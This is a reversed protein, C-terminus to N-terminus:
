GPRVPRRRVPFRVTILTAPGTGSAAAVARALADAV